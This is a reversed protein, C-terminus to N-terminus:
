RAGQTVDHAPFMLTGGFKLEPYRLDSVMSYRAEAFIRIRPLPQQELGAMLAFGPTTSDLLDEVFTNAVLDGRGNLAHVAVGGGVYTLMRLPATWVVQADVGVSLDSWRIPGIDGPTLQIGQALLPPLQELRDAFRELERTRLDASWYSIGPIIRVAPGLYGLDARLTYIASPDVKSPWIRGYSFSVGRFSLNEYDYDALAAQGSALAPILCAVFAICMAAFWKM